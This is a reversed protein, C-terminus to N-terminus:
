KAWEDVKKLLEETGITRGANADELGEMVQAVFNIRYLIDEVTCSDPMRRITEIATEKLRTM